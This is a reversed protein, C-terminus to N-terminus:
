HGGIAPSTATPPWKSMNVSPQAALLDHMVKYIQDLKEPSRAECRVTLAPSTNSNRVLAWGDGFDARAGDIDIVPYKAALQDRLAAVVGFKKDDPCHLQILHTAYLPPLQSFQASLPKDSRSLISLVRGAAILADDVPYYNEGLFIHGSLEGGLLIGEAKMRRKMFSHGTKGLQPNGGHAKVDALTNLSSKVDLLVTSGPHRTLLDRALLINIFDAEWRFGKEDCVGLRDGDGDWALGVEAGVEPVLKMLDAMNAPDEPDPLHNPFTSDPETYLEVVECGLKRLMEPVFLGAVGNGTDVVVKMPRALNVLSAIKAYYDPRPDWRSLAGSGTEFDGALALDRVERIEEEAIPLADAEVMKIGNYEVPNHSATINVGGSTKRHITAFYMLPSTADGIDTVDCGSALAGEIFAGKLGPTHPRLDGGVVMSSGGRRRLWTGWAQGILRTVDPTLDTGALGRIDYARFMHPNITPTGDAM